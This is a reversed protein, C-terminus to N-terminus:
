FNFMVWEPKFMLLIGMLIMIIGALLSSYKGYKSSATTITLTSVAIIFIVMDDIMYFLTYVLLYIIREIGTINNIALIEAFTAPFVTSCALEIINVSVALIVVGIFALILNQETTFKKIRKFVKKRKTENVVHCGENSNKTIFYKRINYLGVILAILGIISRILPISIFSFITTLGLMSLFYVLASVALFSIGLFLMRKKNKMGFLMNILFLLIWMACPNFGDIFGFIIAVLFISVEKVDVNGLFPINEKTENVISEELNDLELYERLKKEIKEGVTDNYGSYSEKGIVTFPVSVNASKSLLTKASLMYSKNTSNKWTEYRFIQISDAYKENLRDLFKEEKACHPCGDGYFFYINIKDELVEEDTINYILDDYDISLALAHIPTLFLM